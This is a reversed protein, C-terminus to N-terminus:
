KKQATLFCVSQSVRLPPTKTDFFLYIPTKPIQKPAPLVCTRISSAGNVKGWGGRIYSLPADDAQCGGIRNVLIIMFTHIHDRAKGQSSLSIPLQAAAKFSTWSLIIQTLSQPHKSPFKVSSHGQGNCFPHPLQSAKCCPSFVLCNTNHM